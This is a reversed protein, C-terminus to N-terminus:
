EENAAETSEAPQTDAAVEAPAEEAREAKPRRITTTGPDRREGSTEATSAEATKTGAAKMMEAAAGSEILAGLRM